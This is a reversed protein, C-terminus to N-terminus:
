PPSVYLCFSVCFIGFLYLYFINRESTRKGEYTYTEVKEYLNVTQLTFFLSRCPQCPQCSRCTSMTSLYVHDVPQCLRCTSLTLLNVPDIPRCSQCTSLNVPYVHNVLRCPQCTSLTSLTSLTFSRCIYDQLDLVQQLIRYFTNGKGGGPDCVSILYQNLTTRFGGGPM